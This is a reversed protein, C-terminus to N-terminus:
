SQFFNRIAEAIPRPRGGTDQASGHLLGPLVATRNVAGNRTIGVSSGIVDGSGIRQDFRDILASFEAQGPQGAFM